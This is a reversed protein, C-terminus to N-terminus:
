TGEWMQDVRWACQPYFKRAECADEEYFYEHGNPDYIYGHDYAVAHGIVGLGPVGVVGTIVGRSMLLTDAFARENSAGFSVVFNEFGPRPPAIQPYMECPTVAYRYDLALRILEQVHHGRWCLPAPLGEFVVSTHPPLRELLSSVPIDLAMAFSTSLCLGPGPMVQMLM